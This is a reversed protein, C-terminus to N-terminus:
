FTVSTVLVTAALAVWGATEPFVPEFVKV